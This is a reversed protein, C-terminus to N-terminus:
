QRGEETLVLRAGLTQQIPLLLTAANESGPEPSMGGQRLVERAQNLNRVTLTIEFPGEGVEELMQQVPGTGTPMLLDIRSTGVQFSARQVTLHPVEDRQSLALGLQRQYLDIASELSRVAIAIGTWRTVGNPHSGPKEWSLRQEDPIDWHILFPWPERWSVGGPVLLRWALLRGDPRLRQMAFPGQAALSVHQFREADQEIDTTALAYGLLGGERKRLFDVLVKGGFRGAVVENEDYISILELYDLGFRVIANHTGLGTHRGGPSVDFGLSRYRRMAENLDRVGIVAHDFRTIM